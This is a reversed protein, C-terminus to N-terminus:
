TTVSAFVTVMHCFFQYFHHFDGNVWESALAFRLFERGSGSLTFALLNGM